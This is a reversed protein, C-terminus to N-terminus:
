RDRRVWLYDMMQCCYGPMQENVFAFAGIERFVPMCRRGYRERLWADAPRERTEELHHFTEHLLIATDIQRKDGVWEYANPLALLRQAFHDDWHIERSEPEYYAKPANGKRDAETYPVIRAVGLELIAAAIDEQGVPYRVALSRGYEVAGSYFAEMVEAPIRAFVPSSLWLAFDLKRAEQYIDPAKRDCAKSERCVEPTKRYCGARERCVEPTKM